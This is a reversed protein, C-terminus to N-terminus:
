LHTFLYPFFFFVMSFFCRLHFYVDVKASWSVYFVYIVAVAIALFACVSLKKGWTLASLIGAFFFVPAVFLVPGIADLFVQYKNSVTGIYLGSLGILYPVLVGFVLGASIAFLLKVLNASM